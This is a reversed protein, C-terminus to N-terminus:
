IQYSILHVTTYGMGSTDADQHQQVAENHGIGVDSLQLSSSNLNDTESITASNHHSTMLIVLWYNCTVLGSIARM